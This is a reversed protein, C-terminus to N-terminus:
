KVLEINSYNYSEVDGFLKYSVITTTKEVMNDGPLEKTIKVQQITNDILIFPIGEVKYVEVLSSTTEIKKTVLSLFLLLLLPSPLFLISLKSPGRDIIYCFSCISTIISIFFFLAIIIM